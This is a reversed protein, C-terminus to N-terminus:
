HVPELRSGNEEHDPIDKGTIISTLKVIHGDVTADTKRARTIGRLAHIITTHDRGFRLGIKTTSPASPTTMLNKILYIAIHRALVVHTDLGVGTIIESPIKFYDSVAFLVKRITVANSGFVDHEAFKARLRLYKEWEPEPAAEVTPRQTALPKRLPIVIPRPRPIPRFLADLEKRTKTPRLVDISIELM